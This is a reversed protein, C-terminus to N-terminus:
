HCFGNIQSNNTMKLSIDFSFKSLIYVYARKLSLIRGEESM